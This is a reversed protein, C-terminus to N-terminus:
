FSKELKHNIYYILGLMILQPIIASTYPPIIEIDSARKFLTILFWMLVSIILAATVAFGKNNILPTKFITFALFASIINIFAVGIRFFIITQEQTTNISLMKLKRVRQILESISYSNQDLIEEVIFTHPPPINQLKIEDYRNMFVRENEHKIEYVGKAIWVKSIEDWTLNEIYLDKDDLYEKVYVSKINNTDIINAHLLISDTKFNIIGQYTKKGKSNSYLLTSYKDFLSLSVMIVFVAIILMNKLFLHPPYKSSYIAKYESSTKFYNLLLLFSILTILPMLLYLYLPSTSITHKLAQSPDIGKKSLINVREFFNIIIIFLFLATKVSILYFLGKKIIYRDIIKM